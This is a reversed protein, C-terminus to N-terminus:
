CSWTCATPVSTGGARKLYPGLFSVTAIGLSFKSNMYKPLILNINHIITVSFCIVTYSVTWTRPLLITIQLDCTPFSTKYSHQWSCRFQLKASTEPTCLEPWIKHWPQRSALPVNGVLARWCTQCSGAAPHLPDPEEQMMGTKKGTAYVGPEKHWRQHEVSGIEQCFSLRLFCFWAMDLHQLLSYGLALHLALASAWATSLSPGCNTTHMRWGSNDTLFIQELTVKFAFLKLSKKRVGEGKKRLEERWTKRDRLQWLSFSALTLRIFGSRLTLHAIRSQFAM